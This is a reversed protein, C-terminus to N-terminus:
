ERGFDIKASKNSDAGAASWAQNPWKNVSGINASFGDIATRGEFYVSDRNASVNIHPFADESSESDYQNYALNREEKLEDDTPIRASITNDRYSTSGGVTKPYYSTLDTFEFEWEGNPLYLLTEGLRANLCVFVYHEGEPM